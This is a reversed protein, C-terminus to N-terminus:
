DESDPGCAASKGPAARVELQFRGNDSRVGAPGVLSLTDDDLEGEWALSGDAWVSLLKGGVAAKLTHASGPAPPPPQVGARPKLNRYGANGCERSAHKGPNRKVSVVIKAEPHVRWMVYLLNCPDQARLKLGLQRRPLGSALPEEPESPGFWTFRVEASNGDSDPLVARMKPVNVRGGADVRGRTVCWKAPSIQAFLTMILLAKM